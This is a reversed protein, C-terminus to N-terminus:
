LNTEFNLFAMKMVKLGLEIHSKPMRLILITERNTKQISLGM